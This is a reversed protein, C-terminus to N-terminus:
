GKKLYKNFFDLDLIKYSPLLFPEIFFQLLEIMRKEDIVNYETEFLLFNVVKDYQGILENYLMKYQTKDYKGMVEDHLYGIHKEFDIDQFYPNYELNEFYIIKETPLELSIVYQIPFIKIKDVEEMIQYKFFPIMLCLSKNKIQLVPVGEVYDMPLKCNLFFNSAKLNKIVQFISVRKEMYVGKKTLM